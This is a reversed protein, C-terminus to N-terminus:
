GAGFPANLRVIARNLVSAFSVWALYPVILAAALKSLPALAWMMAVISVWLAVVEVLAWDPRRLRFFLLSWLVNLVANVLYVVLLRSRAAPTASESSWALVLAVAACLFITSWVPGFLVDSPKWSPKRLEYYWPTLDTAVIGMGGLGVMWVGAMAIVGLSPRLLSVRVM